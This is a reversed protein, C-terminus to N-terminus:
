PKPFRAKVDAVASLWDAETAEGRQWKFFWPDAEEALARRLAADRGAQAAEDAAAQQAALEAATPKRNQWLTKEAM